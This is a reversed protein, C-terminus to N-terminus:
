AFGSLRTPGFEKSLEEYGHHLVCELSFTFFKIRKIKKESRVDTEGTEVRSFCISFYGTANNTDMEKGGGEGKRKESERLAWEEDKKQAKLPLTRQQTMSPRRTSLETRGTELPTGFDPALDVAAL